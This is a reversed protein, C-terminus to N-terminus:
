NSKHKRGAFLGKIAGPIKVLKRGLKYSTSNVVENYHDVYYATEKEFFIRRKIEEDLEKCISDVYRDMVRIAAFRDDGVLHAIVVDDRDLFFEEYPVGLADIRKLLDDDIWAFLQRAAPESLTLMNWSAFNFVWNLYSREYTEYLNERHLFEEIAEIARRANDWSEERTNELSASNGVRHLVCSEDIFAIRKALSLASYVFLADNSTRTDQFKLGHEFVFEKKFLKDWPWGVCFNFLKDSLDTGSYTGAVDVLRLGIELPWTKKTSNDYYESRCVVIDADQTKARVLMREVMFPEFIDDADLFLLYEGEAIEMGTNRAVGAYQNKQELLTIRPDKKAFDEVIRPTSDTSGDDVVIIQIDSFSQSIISELCEEIYLQANYAPIIISVEPM